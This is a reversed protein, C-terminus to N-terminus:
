NVFNTIPYFNPNKITNPKLCINFNEIEFKM